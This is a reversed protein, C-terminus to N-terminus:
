GFVNSFFHFLLQTQCSTLLSSQNHCSPNFYWIHAQLFYWGTCWLLYWKPIDHEFQGSDSISLGALFRFTCLQRYCSMISLQLSLILLFGNLPHLIFCRDWLLQHHLGYPMFSMCCEQQWDAAVSGFVHVHDKDQSSTCDVDLLSKENLNDAVVPKRNSCSITYHVNICM